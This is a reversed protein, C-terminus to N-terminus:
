REAELMLMLVRELSLPRAAVEVQHRQQFETRERDGARVELRAQVGNIRQGLVYPEDFRTPLRGVERDVMAAANTVIWEQHQEQIEDIPGDERLRGRNLCVIRDVVKEVDRLIHSSIVITTEAERLLELLLNLTRERVVPDFASIPEDLLLLEPRHCVALLLSLKQRDGGSLGGVRAGSDLELEAVLRRELDRDWARYFGEVYRLHDDVTMWDLLNIVQDVAGIRNLEEEGLKEAPCGLTRVAGSTPLVLGTCHRLLTSKGAGNRGILGVISGRPISLTVDDLAKKGHFSKTLHEIEIVAERGHPETTM